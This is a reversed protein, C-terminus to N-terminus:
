SLGPTGAQWITVGVELSPTAASADPLRRITVAAAKYHQWDQVCLVSGVTLRSLPIGYTLPGIRGNCTQYSIVTGPALIWGHGPLVAPQGDEMGQGFGFGSSDAAQNAHAAADASALSIGAGYPITVSTVAAIRTGPMVGGAIPPPETSIPPLPSTKPATTPPDTTPPATTPTPTPTPSPTTPTPSPPPTTSDSTTPRTPPATTTTSAPASGPSPPAAVPSGDSGGRILPLLGIVMVAIGLVAIATQRKPSDIPPIAIGNASLGTGVIGAAVFVAGLIILSVIM